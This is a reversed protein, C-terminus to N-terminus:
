QRHHGEFQARFFDRVLGQVQDVERTFMHDAGEVWSVVSPPALRRALLEMKDRPCFQDRTGIIFLSPKDSDILFDFDYTNLPLGMGVLAQIRPDHCGAQLGVWAGFSFGILALPLSPYRRSLWDVLAAADKKEGAGKDYSGTSAGVGRCNFRLAALGAEAAGKAARYVVRNNMTGGYLPHPHCLLAAARLPKAKPEWLVAELKVDGAAILMLM